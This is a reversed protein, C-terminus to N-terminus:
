PLENLKLLQAIHSHNQEQVNLSYKTRAILDRTHNEKNQYIQLEFLNGLQKTELLLEQLPDMLSGKEQANGM